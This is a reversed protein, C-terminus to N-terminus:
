SEPRTKQSRIKLAQKQWETIVGKLYDARDMAPQFDAIEDVLESLSLEKSTSEM